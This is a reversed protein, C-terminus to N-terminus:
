RTPSKSWRARVQVYRAAPSQTMGPQELPASWASWTDDPQQTNGSRTSLELPASATWSLQGFYARLGADLPKSTWIADTGGVGRVPHVVAPDGTGVLQQTKGLLLVGIQREETDAVLIDSHSEDVTYIRGEVGTGVYPKGEPDLALSTYHEADDELLQEPVGDRSFRYLVGKGAAKSRSTSKTSSKETPISSGSKIDNAIAYVDGTPAVVIARVETRGFDHLV